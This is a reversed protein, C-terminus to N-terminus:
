RSLSANQREKESGTGTRQRKPLFLFPEPLLESLNKTIVKRGRPTAMIVTEIGFEAMVQRCAGCPTPPEAGEAVVAIALLRRKGMSVAKHIAVREACHSLGYSVNEVNCGTVVTGDVAWVAAGVKFGSYPAYAKRRADRAARVLTTM